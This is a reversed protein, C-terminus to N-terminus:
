RNQEKSFTVDCTLICTGKTRADHMKQWGQEAARVGIVYYSGDGVLGFKGECIRWLLYKGVFAVCFRM